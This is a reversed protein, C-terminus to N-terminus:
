IFYIILYYGHGLAGIDLANQDDACARDHDALGALEVIRACLCALGQALLAIADDQHIGVRGRDHRVRFHGVRDVDLGNVPRGHLADDGPLARVCQQGRHTALRAEVAREVERTLTHQFFVVHLEDGRRALGDVHGLVAFEESLGHLFDTELNRSRIDRM